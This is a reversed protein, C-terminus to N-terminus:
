LADYMRAEDDLAANRKALERQIRVACRLAADASTFEALLGDGTTKVIRGAGAAIAPDVVEARIARVRALTGADDREMRKSFGVVDAVLIAALRRVAASM